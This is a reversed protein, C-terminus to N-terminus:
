TRSRRSSREACGTSTVRASSDRTSTRRACGFAVRAVKVARLRGRGDGGDFVVPLRREAAPVLAAASADYRPRASGAARKDAKGYAAEADRWWIADRFAQRVMAVAGMKSVPYAARGLNSFEFREPELSVYQAADPVLIRSDLGGDSLALVSGIGRLIGSSPVAAVAGFGMRHYSEVVRESVHLGETAREQAHATSPPAGGARPTEPAPAEEDDIPTRPRRGALRDATVYPDLYAAHVVRGKRELVRADAPIPTSGEPGVAEVVGGRIVVVGPDYVRGPAAIVRAGTIAFALRDAASESPRAAAPASLIASGTLAVAVSGILCLGVARGRRSNGRAM